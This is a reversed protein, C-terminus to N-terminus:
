EEDRWASLPTTPIGRREFGKRITTRPVRLVAAAKYYSACRYVTAAKIVQDRLEAVNGERWDYRGFADIVERPLSSRSAGAGLAEVIFYDVLLLLDAGRARLAPLELSPVEPPFVQGALPVTSTVVFRCVGGTALELLAEAIYRQVHEPQQGLEEVVVLGGAARKGLAARKPPGIPIPYYAGEHEQVCSLFEIPASPGCVIERLAYALSTRGTGREGNVVLGGGPVLLTQVARDIMARFGVDEGVFYEARTKRGRSEEAFAVLDTRGIRIVAGDVVRAREVRLGNLFVGNKSSLDEVWLEHGRRAFRVHLRSVAPDDIRIENAVDTGMGFQRARPLQIERTGKVVRLGVVPGPASAWGPREDRATETAKKRSVDAQDGVVGGEHLSQGIM